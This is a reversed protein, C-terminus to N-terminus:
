GQRTISKQADDAARQWDDTAVGLPWADADRWVCGLPPGGNRLVFREGPKATKRAESETLSGTATSGRSSAAHDTLPAVDPIMSAVHTKRIGAAVEFDDAKRGFTSSVLHL